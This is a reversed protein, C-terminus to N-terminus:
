DPWIEWLLVEPCRRTEIPPRRGFPFEEWAVPAFVWWWWPGNRVLYIDDRYGSTWWALLTSVRQHALLSPSERYLCGWWIALGQLRVRLTELAACNHSRSAHRKVGTPLLGCLRRHAPLARRGRLQTCGAPQHRVAVALACPQAGCIRALRRRTGM